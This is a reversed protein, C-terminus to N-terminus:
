SKIQSYKKKLSRLRQLFDEQNLYCGILKRKGSFAERGHLVRWNNTCLLLGPNLHFRRQNEPCLVIDFFKGASEYFEQQNRIDMVDRDSNNFRIRFVDDTSVLEIMSSRYRRFSNNSGGDAFIFPIKTQCLCKFAEADTERLLLAAKFGDVLITEGGQYKGEICHFFQLGPPDFSYTGDTHPELFENTYATDKVTQNDEFEWFDGFMSKRTFSIKEIIKRTAQHDVFPTNSVLAYGYKEILLLWKLLGEESANVESYDIVPWLSECSPQTKTWLCSSSSTSSTLYIDGMTNSNQLLAEKSYKLLFDISYESMHKKSISNLTNETSSGVEENWTLDVVEKDDNNVYNVQQTIEPVLEIKKKLLNPLSLNRQSSLPHLCKSCQCHDRLWLPYFSSKENNSWAFVIDGNIKDKTISVLRVKRNSFPRACFKNIVKLKKITKM